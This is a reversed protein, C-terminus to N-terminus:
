FFINIYDKYIDLHFAHFFFYRSYLRTQQCEWSSSDNFSILKQTESPRSCESFLFRCHLVRRFRRFTCWIWVFTQTFTNTHLPERRGASSNRMKPKGAWRGWRCEALIAVNGGYGLWRERVDVCVRCIWYIECTCFAFHHAIYVCACM